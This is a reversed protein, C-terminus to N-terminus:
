DYLHCAVAIDRDTERLQPREIRCRDFARPCRPHFKCGAPPAVPDAVTGPIPSLEQQDLEPRPISAILGATYPHRPADLVIATAATEVINGAYMVAVRECTEAIVGFDHSVMLVATGTEGAQLEAILDLIQAQVTVDLATTPEDAIVLAPGLILACAIVVRQQMGGSFEHPYNRYRREPQPIGVRHLTEVVLERIEARGLPTHHRVIEAIQEGICIVPDLTAAPDQFIMSIHRGRLRRLARPPKALLDEGRFLIRGAAIRGPPEILGMISLGLASKGCGSEGVLGLTQAEGLTLDVGDVARVVGRATPYHTALGTIELLAATM